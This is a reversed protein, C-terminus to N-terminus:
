SIATGCARKVPDDNEDVWILRRLLDWGAHIIRWRQVEGPAITFTPNIRGNFATIQVPPDSPSKGTVDISDSSRKEPKVDYIQHADIRGIQDTGVRYTYLQLVVVQDRASKIDHIDELDFRGDEHFKDKKEGPQSENGTVILAGTLGNSVQYAVSGHIHPHYWFTGAPHDDPITYRFTFENYPQKPDIPVNRDIPDIQRFVNDSKGDPSVHLGHMHLNTTSLGHLPEAGPTERDQEPVSDSSGQLQNKVRIFYTKGRRVRLTPGVSSKNYCLLEFKGPVSPDVEAAGGSEFVGATLCLEFTTGNDSRELVKPSEFRTRIKENKAMSFDRQMSRSSVPKTGPPRELNEGPAATPLMAVTAVCGCASLRTFWRRKPM